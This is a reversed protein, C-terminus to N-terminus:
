KAPHKGNGNGNGNGNLNARVFSLIENAVQVAHETTVTGNSRPQNQEADTLRVPLYHSDLVNAKEILHEPVVVQEPMSLLLRAVMREHGNLSHKLRLAKVATEASEHAAYYAWVPKSAAQAAEARELQREAERLLRKWRNLM